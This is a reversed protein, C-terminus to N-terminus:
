EIESIVLKAIKEMGDKNPHLKDVTNQSINAANIGSDKYLDIVNVGMNKAITIIANNYASEDIGNKNVSGSFRKRDPLFTCCYIEVGEYKDLINKIMR